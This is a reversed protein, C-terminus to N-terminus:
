ETWQRMEWKVKTIPTCKGFRSLYCVGNVDRVTQCNECCKLNEIQLKLKGIIKCLTDSNKIQENETELEKIRDLLAGKDKLLQNCRKGLLEYEKDLKAIKNAMDTLTQERKVEQKTM